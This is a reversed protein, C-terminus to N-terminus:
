QGTAKKFETMIYNGAKAAETMQLYHADIQQRKDDRSMDSKNIDRIMKAQAALGDKIGSLNPMMKEISMEKQLNEFDGQKGLFRMDNFHRESKEFNDYFDQVSNSNAQPFRVVFAKVFPIDSLTDAAKPIDPVLGSKALAKDAIQVAYQGLTGGWSQIYNQVVLPSSFSTEGPVFTALKKATESTYDVAHYEPSIGKLHGPIIDRGTFFSKNFYQEMAPAIADPVFSPTIMSIMSKDFDKLSNPNDAFFKELVREPMSGFLLGLEQPKPIRYITGKNVLVKDGKTKVMYDPLGQAEEPKAETWNDTPIIWFMDKEWRPIEKYREDDKNAWWLLVSPATIYMLAKGGTGVPDEKLARATRDLGQVSVNMFATISNLTSIKAGVRQFDITIERSAYGAATLSGGQKRVKKFEAVRLSQESLEAAVRMADVPKEVLNRVSNLFNTDKQLKYIDTKIYRDGMDIFAGNAGGSKLWEYYTDNKTWIDKMSGLVDMPNIGKKDASFTSGTIWDRIQNKVIFEPTFTIGLKKFATLGRMVKLALNMSTSDGDLRKIADAIEPTTEYVKRVGDEIVSFQNKGLQAFAKGKGEAPTILEQGEMKNALEVLAKKPRNTEAAKILAITNEVVSTIPKQISLDSGTMQKLSGLGSGAKIGGGDDEMLRKFPVYDKNAERFNERQDKSIIGADTVYDLVKNSFNTVRKAAEEYKGKNESVVKKAAELDFGSKIGQGEKEIARKSVMYAELVDPNEVDKLIKTLPESVIEKTDFSIVGKEFFHKAKAKYDVATRALIYPNNEAPLEKANTLQKTAENIPDLKDVLATYVESTTLGKKPADQKEGVKSLITNVSDSLNPDKPVIPKVTEITEPPKNGLEGGIPIPNNDALLHQKFAPDEMAKQALEPVSVGTKAYSGMLKGSVHAVAHMGGVLIAADIFDQPQPAHGELASGVTTMTAVEASLQAATKVAVPAALGGIGKAVVGGMGATAGGILAAKGSNIITAATREWFDSFDKVDGKQYHEMMITRMGEPLAFAGAAAGVANGVIPVESGLAGGGVAGLLMAPVDGALQGVQSAIRMYMPAHEPLVKDPKSIGLGTVSMDFGTEVADIFGKAVKKDAGPTANEPAAKKINEEFHNQIASMDPEPKEPAVVEANQKWEPQPPAEYVAQANDRWSM